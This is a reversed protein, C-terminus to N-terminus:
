CPAPKARVTKSGSEPTPRSRQMLGTAVLAEVLEAYDRAINETKAEVRRLRRLLSGKEIIVGRRAEPGVDSRGLIELTGPPVEPGTM